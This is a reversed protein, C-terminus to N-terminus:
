LKVRYRKTVGVNSYKAMLCVEDETMIVNFGRANLEDISITDFDLDSPFRSLLEDVKDLDAYGATVDVGNRVEEYYMANTLSISISGLKYDPLHIRRHRSAIVLSLQVPLLKNDCFDFQTAASIQYHAFQEGFWKAVADKLESPIPSCYFVHGDIQKAMESLTHFDDLVSTLNRVQNVKLKIKM